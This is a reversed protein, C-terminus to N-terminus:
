VSFKEYFDLLENNTRLNQEFIPVNKCFGTYKSNRTAKQRKKAKKRGTGKLLAKKRKKALLRSSDSGKLCNGSPEPLM